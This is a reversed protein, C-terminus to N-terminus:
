GTLTDPISNTTRNNPRAEAARRKGVKELLREGNLVKDDRLGDNSTPHEFNFTRLEDQRRRLKSNENKPMRKRPVKEEKEEMM